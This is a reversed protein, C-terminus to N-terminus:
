SRHHHSVWRGVSHKLGSDLFGGGYNVLKAALYVHVSGVHVGLHAQGRRSHNTCVDAVQVQVLGKGNGVSATTGSYARDAHGAVKSGKQHTMGDHFAASRM